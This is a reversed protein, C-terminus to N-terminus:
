GEAGPGGGPSKGPSRGFQRVGHRSGGIPHEASLPPYGLAEAVTSYANLARSTDPADSAALLALAQLVTQGGSLLQMRAQEWAKKSQGRKQYLAAYLAQLAMPMVPLSGLLSEAQDLKSRNLLLGALMYTVTPWLKKEGHQRVYEFGQEAFDGAAEKAQEPWCYLQPLGTTISAHQFRLQTDTPYRHTLALIHEMATAGDKEAMQSVEKVTALLSM